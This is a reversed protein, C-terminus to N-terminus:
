RNFSLITVLVIAISELKASRRRHVISKPSQDGQTHSLRYRAEDTVGPRYNELAIDVKAALRHVIERGEVTTLNLALCRKNRNWAQYFRSEGKLFPGWARALDGTLPEIKYVEAGFDGLLAASFRWQHLQLFRPNQLGHTPRTSRQPEPATHDHPENADSEREDCQFAAVLGRM